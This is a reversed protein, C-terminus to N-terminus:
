KALAVELEALEAEYVKQDRRKVGRAVPESKACALRRQAYARNVEPREGRAAAELADWAHVLHEAAHAPTYFLITSTISASLKSTLPRTATMATGRGGL